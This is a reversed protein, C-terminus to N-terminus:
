TGLRYDDLWAGYYYQRSLAASMVYTKRGDSIRYLYVPSIFRLPLGPKGQLTQRFFRTESIIFILVM